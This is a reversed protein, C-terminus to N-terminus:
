RDRAPDRGGDRPTSPMAMGYYESVAEIIEDATFELRDGDPVVDAMVVEAPVPGGVGPNAGVRSGPSASRRSGSDTCRPRM